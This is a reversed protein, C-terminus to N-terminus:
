IVFIFDTYNSYQNRNFQINIENLYEYLYNYEFM